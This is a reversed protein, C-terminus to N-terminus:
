ELWVARIGIKQSELKEQDTLGPGISIQLTEIKGIDFTEHESREFYYPLFTPYPRPMTIIKVKELEELPIRYEDASERL